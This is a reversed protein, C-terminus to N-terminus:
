KAKALLDHIYSRQQSPEAKVVEGGQKAAESLQGNSSRSPARGRKKPNNNEHEVRARVVGKYAVLRYALSFFRRSPMEELFDIRHFVSLDSRVDELHDIVWMIQSLRAKLWM